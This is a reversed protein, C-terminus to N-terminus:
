QMMQQVRQQLDEDQELAVAINNYTAVDLGIDEVAAVMMQSAEQQLQAAAESDETGELRASYEQVISQIDAQVEVFRELDTDTIEVQGPVEGMGADQAHVTGLLAIAMLLTAIFTFRQIM